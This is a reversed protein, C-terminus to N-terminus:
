GGRSTDPCRDVRRTVLSFSYRQGRADRRYAGPHRRRHLRQSSREGFPSPRDALADQWGEDSVAATLRAALHRDAAVLVAFGAAIAEPRETSNRIVILPRRLVTCEEQLGGSDSVLLRARSPWPWSPPNTSRSM